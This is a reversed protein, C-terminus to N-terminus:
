SFHSMNHGELQLLLYKNRLGGSYGTLQKKKGVVRHCPIILNIPNWGIASGVAQPSLHPLQRKRALENAIDQYCLVQGYPITLLLQSVDKRFPTAQLLHFKPTFDPIEGAFYHDLWAITEDFPAATNKSPEHLLDPAIKSGIFRLGTLIHGDSCLILDDFPDPTTYTWTYIM